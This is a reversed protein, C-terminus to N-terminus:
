VGIWGRDLSVTYVVISGRLQPFESADLSLEDWFFGYPLKELEQVYSTISKYSGSFRVRFGHRYASYTAHPFSASGTAAAAAASAAEADAIVPRPALGELSEFHLEDLGTLVQRLAEPVQAPPVMRGAREEIATSLSQLKESLGAIRQKGEADPDFEAAASWETTLADFRALELSLSDREALLAKRRAELPGLFWQNWAYLMVVLLSTALLAREKLSLADLRKGVDRLRDRLRSLILDALSNM